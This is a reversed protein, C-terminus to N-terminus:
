DGKPPTPADLRDLREQLQVQFHELAELAEVLTRREYIKRERRM